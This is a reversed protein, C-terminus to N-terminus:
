KEEGRLANIKEQILNKIKKQMEKAGMGFYIDERSISTTITFEEILLDLNELMAVLDAKLRAEYDSKSIAEVTPEEKVMKLVEDGLYVNEIGNNKLKDYLYNGDILREM